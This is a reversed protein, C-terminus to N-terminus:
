RGMRITSLDEAGLNTTLADLAESATKGVSHKDGDVARWLTSSAGANETVISITEM